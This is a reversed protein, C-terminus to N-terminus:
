VEEEREYHLPHDGRLQTVYNSCWYNIEGAEGTSWVKFETLKGM